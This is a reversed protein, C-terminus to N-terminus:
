IELKNDKFYQSKEAFPSVSKPNKERFSNVPVKNVTQKLYKYENKKKKSM